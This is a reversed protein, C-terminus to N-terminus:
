VSQKNIIRENQKMPLGVFIPDRIKSCNIKNRSIVYVDTYM